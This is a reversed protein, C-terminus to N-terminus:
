LSTIKMKHTSIIGHLHLMTLIIICNFFCCEHPPNQHFRKGFLNFFRAARQHEVLLLKGIQDAYRLARDGGIFGGINLWPAADNFLKRGSQLHRKIIKKVVLQGIRLM